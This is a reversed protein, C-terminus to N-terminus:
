GSAQDGNDTVHADQVNSRRPASIETTGHRARGPSFCRRPASNVTSRHRFRDPLLPCRLASVETTRKVAFGELEMWVPQELFLRQQGPILQNCREYNHIQTRKTHIKAQTIKLTKGTM